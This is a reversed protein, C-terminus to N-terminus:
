MLVFKYGQERVEDILQPLISVTQEFEHLLIISGPRIHDVVNTLIKKPEQKLEWDYSSIDWMVPTVGLEKVVRMTDENYKGYPPRFHQVKQCTIQELKEISGHIHKYQKEYSLKTLNKHNHGHSGIQHGEQLLRKWPREQYFYRAQWFFLAPVEKDKLIDLINLTHRGPGDDFTLVVKKERTGQLQNTNTLWRKDQLDYV